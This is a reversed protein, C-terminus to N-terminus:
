NHFDIIAPLTSKEYQIQKVAKTKDLKLVFM